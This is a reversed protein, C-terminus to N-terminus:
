KVVTIAATKAGTGTGNADFGRFTMTRAGAGGFAYSLTWTRTNGSDSYGSTWSKVATGNEAYMTLKTVSNTTVVTITVSKGVQASSAAFKVSNLAPAAPAATM